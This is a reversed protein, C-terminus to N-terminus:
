ATPVAPCARFATVAGAAATTDFSLSLDGTSLTGRGFFELGRLVNGFGRDTVTLRPGDVVHRDTSITLDGMGRDFRLALIPAAPWGADRSVVLAYLGTAPDFTVEIRLDAQRESITCIPDPSFTWARATAPAISLLCVLLLVSRM